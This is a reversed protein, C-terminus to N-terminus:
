DMLALRLDHLLALQIENDPRHKAMEMYVGLAEPMQGPKLAGNEQLCHVLVQFAATTTAMHAAIIQHEPSLERQESMAFRGSQRLNAAIRLISLGAPIGL